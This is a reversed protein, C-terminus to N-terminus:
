RWRKQAVWIEMEEVCALCFDVDGDRQSREKNRRLNDPLDLEDEQEILLPSYLCDFYKQNKTNNANAQQARWFVVEM